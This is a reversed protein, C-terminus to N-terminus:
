WFRLNTFIVRRKLSLSRKAVAIQAAPCSMALHTVHRVPPSAPQRHLPPATASCRPSPARSAVGARGAVSLTHVYRSHCATLLPWGAETRTLSLWGLEGSIVPVLNWIESKGQAPLPTQEVWYRPPYDGLCSEGVANSNGSIGKRRSHICLIESHSEELVGCRGETVDSDGSWQARIAGLM